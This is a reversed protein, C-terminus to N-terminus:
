EYLVCLDEDIQSVLKRLPKSPSIVGFNVITNLTANESPPVNFETVTGAVPYTRSSLAQGQWIAWLRDIQAHHLWFIPDSPSCFVDLQVTGLQFHGGGHVGNPVSDLAANFAAIDVAGDLLAAVATPRTVNSWFLSIDRTLCRPNYGLGGQPGQPAYGIPGLNIQWKDATFPGSAICGGGTAPPFDVFGGGPLPLQIPDRNPVFVGNSGLSWPSGDLVTSNRPDEYNLTWDWYPQAGKYGCVERLAKEYLHLFYRHYGLFLGDAHVFPKQQIHSVVFDDFLTRAGPVQSHPTTGPKSALCYVANIYSLRDKKSLDGWEKRRLLKDPTCGTRRDKITKLVNKQYQDQLKLVRKAAIDEPDAPHAGTVAALPLLGVILSLVKM